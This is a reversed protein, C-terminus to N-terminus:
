PNRLRYLTEGTAEDIYPERPDPVIVTRLESIKALIAEYEKLTQHLPALEEKLVERVVQRIDELVAANLVM